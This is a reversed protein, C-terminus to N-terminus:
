ISEPVFRTTLHKCVQIRAVNCTICRNRTRSCLRRWSSSWNGRWSSSRHAWGHCRRWNASRNGCWDPIRNAPLGLARHSRWNRGLTRFVFRNTYGFGVLSVPKRAKRVIVDSRTSTVTDVIYQRSTVVFRNASTQTSNATLCGANKQLLENTEIPRGAVMFKFKSHKIRLVPSGATRVDLLNRHAISIVAYRCSRLAVRLSFLCDFRRNLM